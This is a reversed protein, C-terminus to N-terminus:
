PHNESIVAVVPKSGYKQHLELALGTSIVDLDGYTWFEDGCEIVNREISGSRAISVFTDLLTNDTSLASSEVSTVSGPGTSTTSSSDIQKNSTRLKKFFQKM